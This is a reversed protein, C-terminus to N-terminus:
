RRPTPRRRSLVSLGGRGSPSLRRPVMRDPLCSRPFPVDGEDFADRPSPRSTSSSRRELEAMSRCPSLPTSTSCRGSSSRASSRSPEGPDRPQPECSDDASAPLESARTSSTDGTPRPARPAVETSRLDVLFCARWRPLGETPEPFVPRRSLAGESPPAISKFSAGLVFCCTM